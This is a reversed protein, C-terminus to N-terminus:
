LQIFVIIWSALEYGFGVGDFLGSVRSAVYCFAFHSLVILVEFSIKQAEVPLDGHVGPVGCQSNPEYSNAVGLGTVDIFVAV